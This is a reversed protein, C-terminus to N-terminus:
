NNNIINQMENLLTEECSKIRGYLKKDIFYEENNTGSRDFGSFLNIRYDKGPQLVENNLVIPEKINKTRIYFNSKNMKLFDIADINSCMFDLTVISEQPRYKKGMKNTLAYWNENFRFYGSCGGKSVPSAKTCLDCFNSMPIPFEKQEKVMEITELCEPTVGRKAINCADIFYKTKTTIFLKLKGLKDNNFDVKNMSKIYGNSDNLIIKDDYLKTTEIMKKYLDDNFIKKDIFPMLYDTNYDSEIIILYKDDYHQNVLSLMRQNKKLTKFEVQPCNENAKWGDDYVVFPIAKKNLIIGFLDPAISAITPDYFYFDRILEVEKNTKLKPFLIKTFILSEVITNIYRDIIGGMYDNKNGIRSRMPGNSNQILSFVFYLQELVDNKDIEIEQM